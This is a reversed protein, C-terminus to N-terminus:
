VFSIYSGVLGLIKAACCDAIVIFNVLYNRVKPKIIINLNILILAMSYEISKVQLHFKFNSSLLPGPALARLLCRPQTTWGRQTHTVLAPLLHLCIGFVTLTPTGPQGGPLM